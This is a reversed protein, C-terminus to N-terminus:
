SVDLEDTELWDTDVPRYGISFSDIEGRKLLDYAKAANPYISANDFLKMKCYLGNEDERLELVSGIIDHSDHQWLCKVKSKGNKLKSKTFREEITKKFAGPMIKDYGSDLDYTSGYGEVIWGDETKSEEKLEFSLSKYEYQM